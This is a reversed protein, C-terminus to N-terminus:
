VRTRSHIVGVIRVNQIGNPLPNFVRHPIYMEMNLNSPVLAVKALTKVLFNSARPNEGKDADENGGPVEGAQNNKNQNASKVM